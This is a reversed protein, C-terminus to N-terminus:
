EDCDMWELGLLESVGPAIAVPELKQLQFSEHVRYERHLARTEGWGRYEKRLKTANRGVAKASSPRIYPGDTSGDPYLVRYFDTGGAFYRANSM